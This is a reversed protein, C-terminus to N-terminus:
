CSYDRLCVSASYCMRQATISHRLITEDLWRQGSGHQTTNTHRYFGGRRGVGDRRSEGGVHFGGGDGDCGCTLAHSTNECSLLLFAPNITNNTLPLLLSSLRHSPQTVNHLAATFAEKDAIVTIKM